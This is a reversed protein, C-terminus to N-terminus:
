KSCFFVGMQPAHCYTFKGEFNVTYGWELIKELIKERIEMTHYEIALEVILEMDEQTISYMNTEFGEIDCKLATINHEKILNIIKEPSDIMETKFILKENYNLNKYYDVENPSGDIGVVLNAGGNLFYIPSHDEAVYTQHRGCGLDLVNKNQTNFHRWHDQSRESEMAYHQM